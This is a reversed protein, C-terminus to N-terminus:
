AAGDGDVAPISVGLAAGKFVYCRTAPSKMSGVAGAAIRRVVSLENTGAKTVLAGMGKFVRLSAKFDVRRDVFFTRLDACTIVLEDSDPEYRLKLAGRPEHIPASPAGTAHHGNIILANNVNDSIYRALTEVALTDTSGVADSNADRVAAVNEVAFKYIRPMDFDWIGLKNGLMGSVAGIALVASYFRDSRTMGADVDAKTQMDKLAREVVERNAVLHQIFVPGGVGYNDALRAFWADSEAKSINPPVEIHLDIVRKLEGEVASKHAALADAMVANSSTVTVSCWTTNNNRLKNSSAEMRHPARGQTSGYVMASLQEGTANTLEDVTMCISNLTGLRHYRSAPTDKAAMLLESPHGLFSNIAMQVTTKGTGSMNSVLNLVAGRVQTSNLLQLLTSGVGVLFGFAHAEMGPRNYFSVIDKWEDLSGKSHFLPALQRTGSAPPALKVGSPTYELEGVVFNGEPTWGMQSRTKNSAASSQLKRVSSALYAMIKELDKGYAVVGHKVLTDRLKDKTLLAAVSSHFRRIGDHPLHLNMGVLEGEGDGHEDSDFFRGTIYLDLPYIETHVENGDPDRDKRFVGGNAGRFYPYPYEPITVAVTTVEPENDPNLPAEVIYGGNVAEAEPVQAGLQIPSGIKHPCGDCGSPNHARYWDCTYPKDTLREAKALTDEPTYGPHKSSIAHIAVEADTCNWAISLAARWLPEELTAAEDVAKKIQACGSGTLSRKLILKFKSKPRTGVAMARTTEDVGYAKAASLDVVQTTPILAKFAYFDFPGAGMTMIQVPRPTDKKYNHTGPVRLIRAADATVTPDIYLKNTMCLDRLGRAVPKWEEASIDRTFPWYIHLGGGSSVVIPDPLGTAALFERLAIAATAADPYPKNPGCDIDAFVSRLFAANDANRTGNFSALAFYADAGSRDAVNAAEELEALESVHKQRVIGKHIAVTCLTGTSPLVTGLFLPNV